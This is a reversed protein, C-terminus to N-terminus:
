HREDGWWRKQHAVATRGFFWHEEPQYLSFSGSGLLVISSGIAIVGLEAPTGTPAVGLTVLVFLVCLRPLYGLLVAVACLSWPLGVSAPAPMMSIAALAFVPRLLLPTLNRVVVISRQVLRRYSPTGPVLRDTAVLWDRLFAALSPVMFVTAVVRVVEAHVPPVFAVAILAMQFGAFARAHASSRLRERYSPLGLAPRLALAAHFILAAVSLLLYWLPLRGVTVAVVPAVLMGVIDVRMDLQEGLRTEYRTRRALFGDLWDGAGIAAYLGAVHWLQTPSPPSLLYGSLLSLCSVRLLTVATAMGLRPSLVATSDPTADTPRWIFAVFYAAVVAAGILWLILPRPTATASWVLCIGVHIAGALVVKKRLLRLATRRSISEHDGSISM